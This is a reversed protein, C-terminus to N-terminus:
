AFILGAGIAMVAVVGNEGLGRCRSSRAFSGSAGLLFKSTFSPSKEGFDLARPSATWIM